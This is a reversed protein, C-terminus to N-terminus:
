KGEDVKWIMGSRLPTSKGSEVEEKRKGGEM